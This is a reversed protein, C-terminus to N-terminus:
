LNSAILNETQCMTDRKEKVKVTTVSSCTKTEDESASDLVIAEENAVIEETNHFQSMEADHEEKSSIVKKTELARRLMSRILHESFRPMQQTSQEPVKAAVVRRKPHFGASHTVWNFHQCVQLFSFLLIRQLQQM